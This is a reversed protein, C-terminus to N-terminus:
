FAPYTEVCAHVNELLYEVKSIAIATTSCVRLGTETARFEERGCRSHLAPSRLQFHGHGTEWSSVAAAAVVCGGFFGLLLHVSGRLREADGAMLPQAQPLKDLTSLVANTLNGTMVATSPAVPLALRLLAFQCAMASVAIMAAIGAMLGHPNAAPKAIVSFILVGALLLFQVLLLLRALESGRTGSMRAVLWVAAVAAIFVPIALVQAPNMRGARVTLAAIVVLNGTIHATFINGLTLYGILDVMGAIASLLTPLRKQLRSLEASDESTQPWSHAAGSDTTSMPMDM